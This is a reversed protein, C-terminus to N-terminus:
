HGINPLCLPDSTVCGEEQLEISFVNIVNVVVSCHVKDVTLVSNVTCYQSVSQCYIHSSNCQAALMCCQILIRVNINAPVLVSSHYFSPPNITKCFEAINREAQLCNLTSNRQPSYVNGVRCVCVFVRVFARVTHLVFCDGEKM